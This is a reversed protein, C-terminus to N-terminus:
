KVNQNFYYRFEMIVVYRAADWLHNFEDIPKNIPIGQVKDWVYAGQESHFEDSDVIFINFNKMISIGDTISGNYKKAPIIPLGRAQLAQTQGTPNTAYKDSSDAYCYTNKNFHQHINDYLINADIVPTYFLKELYLDNGRVGVKVLATPDNTFGYDMGLVTREIDKPFEKIWTVKDFILGERAAREGLGYVKWRWADATNNKINEPTPEYSKIREVVSKPAHQNDRFTTHTFFVNPQGQLNFVWHKTYKPNWDLICFLKCRMTVSEYQEKTVGSLVENIFIIDSTFGEREGMKDLGRFKIISGNIEYEPRSNESLMKESNYLGRLRMKEKFDVLTYDKCNILTDRLIYILLPRRSIICFDAIMDFADFTKGSRSGGENCFTLCNDSAHHEKYNSLMEFYCKNPKYTTQM